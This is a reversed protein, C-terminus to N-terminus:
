KRQKSEQFEKLLRNITDENGKAGKVRAQEFRTMLSEPLQAEHVLLNRAKLQERPLGAAQAQSEKDKFFNLVYSGERFPYDPCATGTVGLLGVGPAFERDYYLFGAAYQWYNGVKDAPGMKGDHRNIGIRLMAPGSSSDNYNPSPRGSSKTREQMRRQAGHTFRMSTHNIALYDRVQAEPGWPLKISTDYYIDFICGVQPWCNDERGGLGCTDTYGVQGVRFAVALVGTMQPEIWKSPMRFKDAFEKTYGWTWPDYQFSEGYKFTYQDEYRWEEVPPKSPYGPRQAFAPVCLLSIVFILVIKQFLTKM